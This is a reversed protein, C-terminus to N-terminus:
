PEWRPGYQREFSRQRLERFQQRQEETLLDYIENRSKISSELIEGQKQSISEQLRRVKAPDPRDEALAERIDDRIDMIDLMLDMHERRAQRQKARIENRQEETLGSLSDVFGTMGMGTMMGQRGMMGPGFFEWSEDYTQDPQRDFMRQGRQAEAVMVAGLVFVIMFVLATSQKLITRKM